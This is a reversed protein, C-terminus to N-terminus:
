QGSPILADPQRGLALRYRLIFGVHSLGTRLYRQHSFGERAHQAINYEAFRIDPHLAAALKIEPSLNWDGATLRLKVRAERRFVWMGSLTDSFVQGYLLRVEANLLRVGLRLRMPIRTHDQLPYRSCSVFDLDHDLLHGIIREIDELPYSGDGDAVVIVDSSCHAIGTMHAFGYGIGRIARDDQLVTLGLSKAVDITTDTSRNSVVVIEDVSPPLRAVVAALHNAENRCPLCVAVSRDRFV